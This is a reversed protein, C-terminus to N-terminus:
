PSCDHPGPAQSTGPFNGRRRRCSTSSSRDPEGARQRSGSGRYCGSGPPAPRRAPADSDRGDIADAPSATLGHDDAPSAGSSAAGPSSTARTSSRSRRPATPGSPRCTPWRGACSACRAASPSASCARAAACCTSSRKRRRASTSRPATPSCPSRPSTTSAASACRRSRSAPHEAALRRRRAAAQRGQAGPHGQVLVAAPHGLRQRTRITPLVLDTRAWYDLQRYTIGAATCATPGRYGLMRGDGHGCPDAFLAGQEPHEDLQEPM